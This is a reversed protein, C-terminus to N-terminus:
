RGCPSAHRRIRRATCASPSASSNCPRVRTPRSLMRVYTRTITLLDFRGERILKADVLEGGVVLTAAGSQFLQQGDADSVDIREGAKRGLFDKTLQVFM